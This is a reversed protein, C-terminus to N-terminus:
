RPKRPLAGISDYFPLTAYRARDLDFAREVAPQMIRRVREALKPLDNLLSLSAFHNQGGTYDKRGKCTRILIGADFGMCSQSVQIYVREHHLTIEGSIAIGAKNSRVDFTSPEFNLITALKRLRRLATAHFTKKVGSDYSCSRKWNM